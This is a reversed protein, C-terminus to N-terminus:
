KASVPDIPGVEAPHGVEHGVQGYHGWYQGHRGNSNFPIDILEFSFNLFIHGLVITPTPTFNTLLAKASRSFTKWLRLMLNKLMM